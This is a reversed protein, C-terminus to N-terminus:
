ENKKRAIKGCKDCELFGIAPTDVFYAFFKYFCSQCEFKAKEIPHDTVIHIKNM